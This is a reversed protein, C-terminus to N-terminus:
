AVTCRDTTGYPMRIGGRRYCGNVVGRKIARAYRGALVRCARLTEAGGSCVQCGQVTRISTRMLLYLIDRCSNKWVPSLFRPVMVMEVMVDTLVGFSWWGGASPVM